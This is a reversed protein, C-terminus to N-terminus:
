RRPGRIWQQLHHQWVRSMTAPLGFYLAMLDLNSVRSGFARSTPLAFIREGWELSLRRLAASTMIRDFSEQSSIDAIVGELTLVSKRYLLLDKDFRMKALLMAQDLLDLLWRFGPFRGRYVQDLSKEVVGRLAAEDPRSRGLQVIARIIRQVDFSLAGLMLQMVQIRQEAALYGVLSWDLLALNQDDTLLLNGAHPDAHFLGSERESWVPQAILAESITAALRERAGQSLDEVQTVKNGYIHEMATLRPTCFPLLQPIRVSSNLAYCQTAAELNRQEQDLRIENALLERVTELTDAYRLEPLAYHECREDIFDGLKSWIELEEALHEEIGPKLIKFVGSVPEPCYPATVTFPIVVAVSAEAVAKAGIRLASVPMKDLERRILEAMLSMPQVPQMSELAQLHNRLEPILRRDRAVIQGLKHLTPCRRLFAALRQSVNATDPLLRQEHVIVALRSPDLHGIFFTLADVVLPRYDAYQDPVLSSVDTGWPVAQENDRM